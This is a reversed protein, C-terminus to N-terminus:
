ANVLSLTDILEEIQEAGSVLYTTDDVLLTPVGVRGIERVEKHSENNDRIKLYNKLHLMSSTIDVYAFKVNKQSLAEKM